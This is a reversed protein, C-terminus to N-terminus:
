SSIRKGVTLGLVMLVLFIVLFLFFLTKAISVAAGEVGTFGFIGAVLGIILFILAWRLM